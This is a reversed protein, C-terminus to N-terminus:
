RRLNNAMQMMEDSAKISKSAIEYARQSVIMNVMEEVADVNSMEIFGQAVTGMGDIGPNGEIPDGSAETPRYRSGGVSLLGAPNAFRVLSLQTEALVTSGDAAMAVMNGGSDVTFRVTEPPISFEPQLRDGDSTVMYGESDMKFAGARMYLEEGNSLIKFFGKGEIALDLENGTQVYDGQTFMKQVSVPRSGMGVQIGTPVQGGSSTAAGPSRLNQYLLDVFDPRSKKFGGTNVNALNNAIIDMNLKQAVMGSAATWLSRIM